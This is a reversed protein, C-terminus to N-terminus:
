RNKLGLQRGAEAIWARLFTSSGQEKLREAHRRSREQEAREAAREEPGSDYVPWGSAPVPPQWRMMYRLSDPDLLRRSGTLPPTIRDPCSNQDGCGEYQWGM